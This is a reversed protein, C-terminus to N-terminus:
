NKGPGFLRDYKAEAHCKMCAEIRGAATITKGDATLTGYVWGGDTGPTEPALKMMVFLDAPKAAKFVKEGVRVYPYFRDDGEGPSTGPGAAPTRVTKGFETGKGPMQNSDTVEEPVWAQKVVIQGVAVAGGERLTAYGMRDKAFLSYLKKGHTEDDKSASMAVRGPNPARCDLPAWRSEDDVRGWTKYEAVAQLLAKDQLAEASEEKGPDGTPLRCALGVLGFAVAGLMLRRVLM